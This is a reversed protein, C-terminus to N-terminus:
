DRTGDPDIQGMAAYHDLHFTRFANLTFNSRAYEKNHLSMADTVHQSGRLRILAEAISEPTGSVAHGMQGEVFFDKIGGVLTTVVPLGSAMAELLAIPLGESPSPMVFAHSERLVAYKKAGSVHGLFDANVCSERAIKELHARDPGDGAIVLRLTDDEILPFARILEVVGKEITLRGLYLVKFFPKTRHSPSQFANDDVPLRGLAIRERDVGM